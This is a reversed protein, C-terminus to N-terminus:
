ALTGRAAPYLVNQYVKIWRDAIAEQSFQERCSRRLDERNWKQLNSAVELMAEGLQAVDGVNVLIGNEANIFDEPGGCRTAIVPMGMALAEILVVGFTEHLSSIVFADSKSMATVVNNRALMGSFEIQTAVGLRQALIQLRLREPGEGVIQLAFREEGRFRLAFARILTDVSKNVELSCVNLFRFIESERERLPQAFFGQNVSNPIIGISGPALKLILELNKALSSSVAFKAAAENFSKQIVRTEGDSLLGRPFASSHEHIVYPLGFKNRLSLAASGAPLTSQVHILDPVGEKAVYADFLELVMNITRNHILRWYRPPFNARSKRFTAIGADKEYRIENSGFLALLPQTLARHSPAIVGVRAGARQLALAQERFFSGGINSPTQPYWSPLILIHM